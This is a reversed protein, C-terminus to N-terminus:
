IFDNAVWSYDILHLLNDTRTSDPDTRLYPLNDHVIHIHEGIDWKANKYNWMYTTASNGPTNLLAITAKKDMKEAKMLVFTGDDKKRRKHVAYHTIIGQNNTWIGSIRFIPM